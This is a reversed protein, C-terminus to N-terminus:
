IRKQILSLAAAAVDTKPNELALKDLRFTNGILQKMSDHKTKLFKYALGTDLTHLISDIAQRKITEPQSPYTISTLKEAEM